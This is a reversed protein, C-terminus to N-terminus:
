ILISYRSKRGLIVTVQLVLHADPPVDISSPLQATLPATRLAPAFSANIRHSIGPFGTSRQAEIRPFAGRYRKWELNRLVAMLWCTFM